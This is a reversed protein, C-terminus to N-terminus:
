LQKLSQFWSELKRDLQNLQDFFSDMEDQTFHPLEFISDLFGRVRGSAYVFSDEESSELEKFLTSLKQLLASKEHESSPSKKSVPQIKIGSKKKFIDHDLNARM